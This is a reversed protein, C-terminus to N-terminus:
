APTDNDTVRFFSYKIKLTCIWPLLQRQNFVTGGKSLPMMACSKEFVANRATM